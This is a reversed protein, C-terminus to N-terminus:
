NQFKKSFIKKLMRIRTLIIQIIKRVRQEDLYARARDDAFLELIETEIGNLRDLDFREPHQVLAIQQDHFNRFPQSEINLDPEIYVAPTDYRLSTGCDFIPTMGTYHLTDVNRIAGFNGMHRDQNAILYDLVLMEDLSRRYDPIELFECCRVFHTFKDEQATMPLTRSIEGATILGTDRTIFNECVSVPMHHKGEYALWYKTNYIGLRDAIRSAIVENFPEQFFNAGGKILCCKGDLIKWKKRLWGNVTSDPSMMDLSESDPRNGFLINGIDESFDHDFFNVNEWTMAMESPRVWYQDSLSLGLCRTLLEQPVKLNLIRLAQAVGSRSAPISRRHWWYNLATQDPIQNVVPIGVPIRNIRYVTGIRDISVGDAQIHLEMVSYNKQMLTYWM